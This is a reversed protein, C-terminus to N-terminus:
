RAVERKPLTGFGHGPHTTGGATCVGAHCKPCRGNTCRTSRTIKSGCVNCRQSERCEECAPAHPWARDDHKVPDDAPDSACECLGTGPACPGTCAICIGVFPSECIRTAMEDRLGSPTNEDHDAHWSCVDLAAGDLFLVMTAPTGCCGANGAAGCTRTTKAM